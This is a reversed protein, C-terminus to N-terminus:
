RRNENADRQPLFDPKPFPYPAVRVPPRREIEPQYQVRVRGRKVPRNRLMASEPIQYDPSDRFM